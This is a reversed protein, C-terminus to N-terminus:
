RFQLHRKACYLVSAPKTDYKYMKVLVLLVFCTWCVHQDFFGVRVHRRDDIANFAGHTNEKEVGGDGLIGMSAKGAHDDEALDVLDGAGDGTEGALDGALAVDDHGGARVM